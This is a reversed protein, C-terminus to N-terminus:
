GGTVLIRILGSEGVLPELVIGLSSSGLTVVGPHTSMAVKLGPMPGLTGGEVVEAKVRTVGAIVVPVLRAGKRGRQPLFAHVGAAYQHQTSLKELKGDTRRVGLADGPELGHVGPLYVVWNREDAPGHAAASAPIGAAALSLGGAAALKLLSRRSTPPMRIPDDPTTM